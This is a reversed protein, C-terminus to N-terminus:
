EAAESTQRSLEALVYEALREYSTGAEIGEREWRSVTSQDVNFRKAFVAQNEGLRARAVRIDSAPIMPHCYALAM